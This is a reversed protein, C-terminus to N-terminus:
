NIAKMHRYLTFSFAALMARHQRGVAAVARFGGGEKEGSELCRASWRNWAGEKLEVSGVFCLCM